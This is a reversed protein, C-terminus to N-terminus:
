VIQQASEIWDPHEAWAITFYDFKIAPHLAVAAYLVPNFETLSYYKNLKTWALQIYAVLHPSSATYLTQCTEVHDLLGDMAPLIDWLAGHGRHGELTLTM